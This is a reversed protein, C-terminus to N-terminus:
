PQLRYELLDKITLFILLFKELPQNVQNSEQAALRVELHRKCEELITQHLRNKM